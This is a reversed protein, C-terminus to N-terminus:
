GAVPLRRVIEVGFLRQEAGDEDVILREITNRIKELGLMEVLRDMLLDVLDDALQHADAFECRGDRELGEQRGVEIEASFRQRL